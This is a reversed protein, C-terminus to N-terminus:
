RHNPLRYKTASTIVYLMLHATIASPVDCLNRLFSLLLHSCLFQPLFIQLFKFPLRLNNSKSTQLPFILYPFLCSLPLLQLVLTNHMLHLIPQLHKLLSLTNTSSLMVALSFKTPPLTSSSTLKKVSRTVSFFVHPELLLNIHSMCKPPMHLVVLFELIHTLPFRAM